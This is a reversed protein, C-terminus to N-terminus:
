GGGLLIRELQEVPLAADDGLDVAHVLGSAALARAREGAPEGGLAAAVADAAGGSGALALVQRGEAVSAAADAYSIEGGNVLMTASPAGGAIISAVRALWPVEDGWEGGPVLLVHSHNPELLAQEASLEAGPEAALASVVVGVLPFTRGRARAAGLRRMVGVDTGGDVVAAGAREALGALEELVPDLQELEAQILRDAGGILVLTPQPRTFGLERLAGPLDSTRQVRLRRM